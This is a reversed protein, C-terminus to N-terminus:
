DDFGKGRRSRMAGEFLIPAHHVIIVRYALLLAPELGM